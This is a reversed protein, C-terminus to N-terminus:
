GALAHIEERFDPYARVQVDMDGDEVDPSWWLGSPALCCPGVLRGPYWACPTSPVGPILLQPRMGSRPDLGVM